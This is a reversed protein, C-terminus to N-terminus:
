FLLKVKPVFGPIRSPQCLTQCAVLTHSHGFKLHLDSVGGGGKEGPGKKELLTCINHRRVQLRVRDMIQQPNRHAVPTVSGIHMFRPESRCPLLHFAHFAHMGGSVDDSVESPTSIFQGHAHLERPGPNQRHLPYM